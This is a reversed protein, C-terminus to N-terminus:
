LSLLVGSYDGAQWGQCDVEGSNAQLGDHLTKIIKIQNHDIVCRETAELVSLSVLGAADHKHASAVSM